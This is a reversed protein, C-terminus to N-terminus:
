PLEAAIQRNKGVPKEEVDARAGHGRRHDPRQSLRKRLVARIARGEGQRRSGRRDQAEASDERGLALARNSLATEVPTAPKTSSIASCNAPRRRRAQDGRMEEKEIMGTAVLSAEREATGIGVLFLDAAKALDFVEGVGKQGLLM